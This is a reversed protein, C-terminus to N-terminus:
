TQGCFARQAMEQEVERNRDQIRRLRFTMAILMVIAFLLWAVPRLDFELSGWQITQPLNSLGSFITQMYLEVTTLFLIAGGIWRTELLESRFCAAVALFQALL